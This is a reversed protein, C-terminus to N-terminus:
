VFVRLRQRPHRGGVYVKDGRRNLTLGLWADPLEVRQVLETTALEVVSISPTEYGAELVLLHKGDRSVELSMPLSRLVVQTGSPTIRQGTPLM